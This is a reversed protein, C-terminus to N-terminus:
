LTRVAMPQASRFPVSRCCAPGRFLKAFCEDMVMGRGKRGRRIELEKRGRGEMGEGKKVALPDPPVSYILWRYGLGAALGLKTCNVAWIQLDTLLKVSTCLVGMSCLYNHVTIVQLNQSPSLVIDTNNPYSQPVRSKIWGVWGRAVGSSATYVLSVGTSSSTSAPPTSCTICTLRVQLRHHQYLLRRYRSQSQATHRQRAARVSGRGPFARLVVFQQRQHGAVGQAAM